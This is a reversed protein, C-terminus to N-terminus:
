PPGFGERVYSEGKHTLILRQNPLAEIHGGALAFPLLEEVSQDEWAAVAALLEQLEMATFSERRLYREAYYGATLLLDIPALAQKLTIMDELTVNLQPTFRPDVHPLTEVPSPTAKREKEARPVQKEVTGHFGLIESFRALEAAVFARDGSVEVEREGAKLRFRYPGEM